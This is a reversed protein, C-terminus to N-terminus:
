RKVKKKEGTKELWLLPRRRKLFEVDEASVGTDLGPHPPARFGGHGFLPCQPVHVFRSCKSICKYATKRLKAALERERRDECNKCAVRTARRAKIWESRDFRLHGLSTLCTKCEVVDVCHRTHGQKACGQCILKTGRKRFSEMVDSEYATARQKKQCGECEYMKCARCTEARQVFDKTEKRKKCASCRHCETCRKQRDKHRWNDRANAPFDALALGNRKCVECAVEGCERCSRQGALFASTELAKRCTLCTHCQTCRKQRDKHRWHDRVRAPFDALVLGDRNCVECAVEVCKRCSRQESDFASTEMPVDCVSCTHCQTCRKQRDKHRWHKRVSAPFDSFMLEARKCVDCAALGCERCRSEGHEFSETSFQGHSQECTHYAVSRKQRSARNWEARVSPPFDALTLDGSKCVYLKRIYWVM